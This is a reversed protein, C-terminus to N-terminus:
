PALRQWGGAFDPALQELDVPPLTLQVAPAKDAVDLLLVYTPEKSAPHVIATMIRTSDPSWVPQNWDVNRSLTRIENGAPDAIVVVPGLPDDRLFAVMSGDPSWVADDEPLPSPAFPREPQGDLGVIFLQNRDPDTRASFIISKGDPSWEAIEGKQGIEKYSGANLKRFNSGDRDVVALTGDSVGIALRRGDPSWSPGWIDGGHDGLDVTSSGDAASVYAHDVDSPTAKVRSYAISRSDPSWSPNTIGKAPSGIVIPDSGDADAVVLEVAYSPDTDPVETVQRRYAIKTGDRSFIPAFASTAGFTVQRANQGNADATWIQGGSDYAIRGNAAPGFPAPLRPQSATYAIALAVALLLAILLLVPAVSPVRRMSTTLQMPIWREPLLWTPRPRTRKTREFVHEMLADSERVDADAEFWASIIRDLDDAHRETTM